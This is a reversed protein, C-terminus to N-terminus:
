EDACRQAINDFAEGEIGPTRDSVNNKGDQTLLWGEFAYIALMKNRLYPAPDEKKLLVRLENKLNILALGLRLAREQDDNTETTETM